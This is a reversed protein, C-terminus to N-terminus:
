VSCAVLDVSEERKVMQVRIELHSSGVVALFPTTKRAIGEQIKVKGLKGLGSVCEGSQGGKKERKKGLIRM